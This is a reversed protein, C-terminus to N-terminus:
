QLRGIAEELRTAMALAEARRDRQEVLVEEPAKAVFQANGLKADFRAIEEQTKKLDKELRSREKAFDIVDGLPLAAVAEGIVVQASGSPIASAVEASNLRALSQIVGKNRALRGQSEENAGVLLMAIKAGAPVNM